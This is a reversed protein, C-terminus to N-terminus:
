FIMVVIRIRARQMDAQRPLIEVADPVCHVGEITTGESIAM